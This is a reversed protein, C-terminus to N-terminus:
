NVSNKIQTWAPIDDFKRSYIKKKELVVQKMLLESNWMGMLEDFPLRTGAHRLEYYFFVFNDVHEVFQSDSATTLFQTDTFFQAFFLPFFLRDMFELSWSGACCFSQLETSPPFLGFICTKVEEDMQITELRERLDRIGQQVDPSDLTGMPDLKKDLRRAEMYGAYAKSMLELFIFQIRKMKETNPSAM